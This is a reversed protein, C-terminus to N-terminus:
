VSPIHAADGAVHSDRRAGAGFRHQAAHVVADAM